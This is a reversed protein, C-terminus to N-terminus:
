GKRKRSLAGLSGVALLGLITGPEPVATANVQFLTPAPSANPPLILPTWSGAPYGAFATDFITWGPLGTQSVDETFNWIYADDVNASTVLWYSTNPALVIPTQPTLTFTGTPTTPAVSPFLTLVAGPAVNNDSALYVDINGTASGTAGSFRGLNLVVSDLQWGPGSGTTFRNAVPSDTLDADQSGITWADGLPNNLNSVVSAAEARVGALSVLLTFAPVIMSFTRLHNTNPELPQTPSLTKFLTNM